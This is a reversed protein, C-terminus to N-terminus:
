ANATSGLVLERFCDGRHEFNQFEDFSPAGPSLLVTENESAVDRLHEIAAALSGADHIPCIVGAGRLESSIRAGAPGITSISTPPYDMLAAFLGTYDLGKEAGGLILHYGETVSKLAAITAEANTAKSDNIWTVKPGTSIREMRHPLGAFTFLHQRIEDPDLGSAACALATMLANEINHSGPLPLEAAPGLPVSAGEYTICLENDKLTGALEEGALAIGLLAPGNAPLHEPIAKALYSDNAKYIAVDGDVQRDLMRLKAALYNDITGHRQLHDPTLNSWIAINPHFRHTSELQYSSVEWVAWSETTSNATTEATPIGINGGLRADVGHQSLVWHIWSAITSKGNTGTVAIVRGPFHDAVLDLEAVFEVKSQSAMDMILRSVDIGPSPILAGVTPLLRMWDHGTPEFCTEIGREFWSERVSADFRMAPADDVAVVQGGQSRIFEIMSLGTRGLGYVAFRKGEIAKPSTTSSSSVAM